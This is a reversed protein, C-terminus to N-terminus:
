RPAPFMALMAVFQDQEAKAEKYYRAYYIKTMLGIQYHYENHHLAAKTLRSIFYHDFDSAKYANIEANKIKKGDIWVGYESADKWENLQKESPSIKPLPPPMPFFLNHVQQQQEANMKKYLAIAENKDEDSLMTVPYRIGKRGFRAGYKKLIDKFQEVTNKQTNQKMASSDKEAVTNTVSQATVKQCFLLVALAFFPMVALQTLIAMKSSTTKTMMILRKKTTLYNFQSTLKLSSAKCAKALLLYQYATKDRFHDTVWADALFEHNLQIDRKYLPIFPNFWCAVQLLEVLLVDLTHRQGVHAQEHCIIEPEIRGDRYDSKNIFIYNLFSHPTVDNDILILRTGHHDAVINHKAMRSMRYINKAFRASLALTVLAYIIEAIQPWHNAPLAEGM